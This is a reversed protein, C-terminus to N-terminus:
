SIQILKLIFMLGPILDVTDALIHAIMGIYINGKRQTIYILPILGITRAIFMWPTWVHFLALLISNIPVAWLGFRSLRPLLYGRFFVEEAIPTALVGVLFLILYSFILTSKSYLNLDPTLKYVDPWWAFLRVALSNSVPNLSVILFGSTLFVPPIFLLYQKWDVKKRYLIIGELSFGRNKRYGEYYLIGFLTPLLVILNAISLALFAPLDLNRVLPGLLFFASGTLIGPLLHLAISRPISHQESSEAPRSNQQTMPTDGDLPDM